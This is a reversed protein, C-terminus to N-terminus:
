GPRGRGTVAAEPGRVRLYVLVTVASVAASLLAGWALDIPVLMVPFGEIVALSTLDWTAYTVLGFGAGRGAAARWSRLAVAPAIVFYVLGALFLAYFLAAAWANPSKSLLDGLLQEYLSPAVLTLWALDLLLFVVAAVVYQGILARVDRRYGPRALM